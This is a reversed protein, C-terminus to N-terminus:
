RKLSIKIKCVQLRNKAESKVNKNGIVVARKCERNTSIKRNYGKLIKKLKVKVWSMLIM